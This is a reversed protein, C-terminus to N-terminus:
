LPLNHSKQWKRPCIEIGSSMRPGLVCITEEMFAERLVRGGGEWPHMLNGKRHVCLVRQM